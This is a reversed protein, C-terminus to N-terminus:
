AAMMLSSPHDVVFGSADRKAPGKAYLGVVVGRPDTFRLDTLDGNIVERGMFLSAMYGARIAENRFVVAVNQGDRFAREAGARSALTEGTFSFTLHYNAPVKRGPIKTYDYFQVEPFWDFVSQGGIHYASAEWKIDSTGNLRVAPKVGAKRCRRVHRRIEAVLTWMFAARDSMLYRTRALRAQQVSNSREGAELEAYTLVAGATLGGRGATNLCSARCGPTSMPCVQWGSLKAPALHLVATWVGDTRGKDVKPNGELTLLGRSPLKPQTNM